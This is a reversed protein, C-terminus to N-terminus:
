APLPCADQSAVAGEKRVQADTRLGASEVLIWGRMPRGTLDFRRTHSETLAKDTAEPALRVILETRHVGCCMNGNLLFAIGGFMRKEAVGKRRGLSRRIREALKEDFAM